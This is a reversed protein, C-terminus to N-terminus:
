GKLGGQITKYDYIPTLETNDMLNQMVHEYTGLSFVFFGNNYVNICGYEEYVGFRLNNNFGNLYPLMGIYRDVYEECGFWSHDIAILRYSEAGQDYKIVFETINDGFCPMRNSEPCKHQVDGGTFPLHDFCTLENFLLERTDTDVPETIYCGDYLEYEKNNKVDIFKESQKDINYLLNMAGRRGIFNQPM